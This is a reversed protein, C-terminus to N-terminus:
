GNQLMETLQDVQKELNKSKVLVKQDRTKFYLKQAKRMQSVLEIYYKCKEVPITM